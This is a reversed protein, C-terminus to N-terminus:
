MMRYIVLKKNKKRKDLWLSYEQRVARGLKLEESERNTIKVFYAVTAPINGDECVLGRRQAYFSIRMDPVAVVDEPASNERLWQAAILYSQKEIRLPRLLKPVCIGLGIVLLIFFWSGIKPGAKKDKYLKDNFINELWRGIIQLGVPIYFVTFSILPLSYRRSIGPQVCCYRLLIVAVNILVFVTILFREEHKSGQRFRYYFGICLAPVFFWMLNESITEVLEGFGKVIDHFAMGALCYHNDTVINEKPAKTKDPLTNCSFAEIDSAHVEFSSRIDENISKDPISDIIPTMDSGIDNVTINVLECDELKGDSVIFSVRYDGAQDYNPTWSFTQNSFSAGAPFELGVYAYWAIGKYEWAGEPCEIAKEKTEGVKWFYAKNESSWFHYVPKAEPHEDGEQFAYYVIGEYKWEDSSFKAIISDRELKSITYFHRSSLPSWFRYVPKAGPPENGRPFAYYEIGEYTWVHSYIGVLKDKESESITYFHRSKSPSRFRYVPKAGIPVFAVSYTLKDGDSDSASIRLTLPEGEDVIFSLPRGNVPENGVATIVPASNVAVGAVKYPNIEGRLKTYPGAPLAFGVLLLVLAAFLKSKTMNRRSWFSGLTLWIFGYLVLQVCIPRILYGVGACLGVLGFAWWKGHKAGWFLFLFGTALFLIHPWERVVDSGLRAPYPLMVLILIAWFSKKSGVLLKGTFYLPILALLRCLLTIGQASYVWSFVSPNNSFLTVFKHAMFILFPYGLSHSKAVGTPDSSFRRAQEIYFVGDKAILVTTAILYVGICFAVGLLIILHTIDYKITQSNKM